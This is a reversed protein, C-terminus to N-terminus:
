VLLTHLWFLKDSEQFSFSRNARFRKFKSYQYELLLDMKYFTSPLGRPNVLSNALYAEQLVPDATCIDFIYLQWLMERAYKPKNASPAQHILCVERLAHRFFGIDGNKIAYCLIM